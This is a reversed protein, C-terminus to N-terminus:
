AHAAHERQVNRLERRLRSEVGPDRVAILNGWARGHHLPCPYDSFSRWRHSSGYEVIPMWESVIVTYGNAILFDAMDTWAYGLPITKADEFECIILTPRMAQWPLGKLVFFDFGETDIKLFDVRDVGYERLLDDLTIVSVSDSPAHSPHFSSLGSIGSSLESRYFRVGDERHDSIARGDVRVRPLAKVADVLTERNIPDPEAAIVTWGSQAFPLLTSGVHAGVDVMVGERASARLAIFALACEDVHLPRPRRRLVAGIRALVALLGQGRYLDVAKALRSVM